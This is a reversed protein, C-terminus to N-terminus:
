VQRRKSLNDLKGMCRRYVDATMDAMTNLNYTKLVEETSVNLEAMRETLDVYQKISITSIEPEDLEIEFAMSYVARKAERLGVIDVPIAFAVKETIDDMNVLTLTARNDMVSYLLIVKHRKTKRRIEDMVEPWSNYKEKSLSERMKVLKTYISDM